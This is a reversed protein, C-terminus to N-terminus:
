GVEDVDVGEAHLRVLAAEDACTATPAPREVLPSVLVAEAVVCGLRPSLIFLQVRVVLPVSPKLHHGVQPRVVRCSRETTVNSVVSLFTSRLSTDAQQVSHSRSCVSTPSSMAPRRGPAALVIM